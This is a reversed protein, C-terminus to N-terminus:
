AYGSLSAHDLHYTMGPELFVPGASSGVPPIVVVRAGGGVEFWRGEHVVIFATEDIGVGVMGPHDAVARALRGFRQRVLFHQDVIVDSWLGLGTGIDTAGTIADPPEGTIMVASMAAAGASIGGITGGARYRRRLAEPVGTGSLNAMLRCQDGSSLWVLAAAEIQRVATEQNTLDLLDILEAGAERWLNVLAFGNEPLASAHPVATVRAFPGGVSALVWRRFETQTSGGGHLVLRGGPPGEGSSMSMTAADANTM